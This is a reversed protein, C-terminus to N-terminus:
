ELAQAFEGKRNKMGLFGPLAFGSEALGIDRGLEITKSLSSVQRASAQSPPLDASPLIQSGTSTRCSGM